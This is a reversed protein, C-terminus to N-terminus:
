HMLARSLWWGAATMLVGGGALVLWVRALSAAVFAWCFGWLLVLFGLMSSLSSAEELNMGAAFLLMAGLSIFGWTFAYGGLTSALVRSAVYWSPHSVSAM